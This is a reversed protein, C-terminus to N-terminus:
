GSSISVSSDSAKGVGGGVWWDPSCEFSALCPPFCLLPPLPPQGTALNKLLISKEVIDTAYAFSFASLFIVFNRTMTPSTNVAINHKMAPHQLKAILFAILIWLSISFISFIILCCFATALPTYAWTSSVSLLLPDILTTFVMLQHLPLFLNRKKNSLNM